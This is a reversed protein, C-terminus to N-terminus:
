KGQLSAGHHESCRWRAGPGAGSRSGPGPSHRRGAARRREARPSRKAGCRGKWEAVAERCRWAFGTGRYCARLGACSAPTGIVRARCNNAMRKRIYFRKDVYAKSPELFLAHSRSRLSPTLVKTSPRDQM